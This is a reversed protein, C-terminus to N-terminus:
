RWSRGTSINDEHLISVSIPYFDKENTEAGYDLRYLAQASDRGYGKDQSFYMFFPTYTNTLSEPVFGDKERFLFRDNSYGASVIVQDYYDICSFETDTPDFPDQDM